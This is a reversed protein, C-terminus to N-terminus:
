LCRFAQCVAVLQHQLLYANAIFAQSGLNKSNRSGANSPGATRPWGLEKLEKGASCNDCM